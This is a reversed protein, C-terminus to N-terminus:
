PMPVLMLRPAQVRREDSVHRNILEYVEEGNMLRAPFRKRLLTLEACPGQNDAAM